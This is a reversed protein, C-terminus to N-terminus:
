ATALNNKLRQPVEAFLILAALRLALEALQGRAPGDVKQLTEVAARDRRRPIKEDLRPLLRRV